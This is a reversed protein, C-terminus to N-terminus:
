LQNRKPLTKTILKELAELMYQQSNDIMQNETAQLAEDFFGTAPMKGRSFGQKTQRPVTGSNFLHGHYGRYSGFRRAGIKASVFVSSRRGPMPVFGFSKVLNGSSKTRIAAKLLAKSSQILPEGGKRFSDLIVRKQDTRALTAFFENLEDVGFVDITQTEM